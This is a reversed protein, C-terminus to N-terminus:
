KLSGILIGILVAVVAFVATIQLPEYNRYGLKRKRGKWQYWAHLVFQRLRQMLSESFRNQLTTKTGAPM